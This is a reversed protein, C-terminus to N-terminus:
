NDRKEIHEQVIFALDDNGFLQLVNLVTQDTIEASEKAPVTEEIIEILANNKLQGPYAKEYLEVPDLENNICWQSYILIMMKEDNQYSEIVQKDKENVTNM